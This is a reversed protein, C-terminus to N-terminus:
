APRFVPLKFAGNSDECDIFCVSVDMGPKAEDNGFGQPNSLFLPGEELEVLINDWPMPLMGGYYDQHFTCWSVLKGRGSMKRWELNDGGCAECQEAAPWTYHGCDGCRQIRLEERACFAWFPDHVPGLTRPPRKDAM